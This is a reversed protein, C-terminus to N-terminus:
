LNVTLKNRSDYYATQNSKTAGKGEYVVRILENNFSYGTEDTVRISVELIICDTQALNSKIRL